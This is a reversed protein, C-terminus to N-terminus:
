PCVEHVTQLEEHWFTAPAVEYQPLETTSAPSVQSSPFVVPPSPQEAAHWHSGAHLEAASQSSGSGM